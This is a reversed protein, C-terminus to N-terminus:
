ATGASAHREAIIRLAEDWRAQRMNQRLREWHVRGYAIKTQKDTLEIERAWFRRQFEEYPPAAQSWDVPQGASGLFLFAMAYFMHAAQRALFLRARQYEDPAQGLYEQLYNVEEANNTVIMNAVVALDAYRDNRFAAEWDVLWVRQGDFLLNDPKFLDNHSSVFDADHVPYVAALQAHRTFLEESDGDPLIQAARFKELFGERAPGKHILFLYSTNLHDPVGPFPALAHLRRLTAPIRTLADEAAFSRSKVFDTISVRDEVSTYWVRPALGAEAAARMCGYHRPLDGARLNIRLLYASGQVAIRFVPNAGQQGTRERIEECESVGFAEHLGRAVAASKEPPIM